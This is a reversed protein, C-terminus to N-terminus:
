SQFPSEILLFHLAMLVRQPYKRHRAMGALLGSKKPMAEIGAVALMHKRNRMPAPARLLLGLNIASAYEQTICLFQM